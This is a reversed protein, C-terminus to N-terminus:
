VELEVLLLCAQVPDAIEEAERGRGEGETDVSGVEGVRRINVLECVWPIRGGGGKRLGERGGRRGRDGESSDGREETAEKCAM